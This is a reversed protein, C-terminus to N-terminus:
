DMRPVALQAFIPSLLVASPISRKTRRAVLDLGDSRVALSALREHPEHVADNARSQAEKKEIIRRSRAGQVEKRKREIATAPYMVAGEVILRTVDSSMSEDLCFFGRLVTPRSEFWLGSVLCLVRPRMSFVRADFM